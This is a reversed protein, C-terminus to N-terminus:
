AASESYQVVAVETFMDRTKNVIKEIEKAVSDTYSKQGCKECVDTPVGRIVVICKGLEATFVSYRQEIEGKCYFCM